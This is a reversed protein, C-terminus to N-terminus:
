HYGYGAVYDIIMQEELEFESMLLELADRADLLGLPHHSADVIPVNNLGLEKMTEWVSSVPDSPYCFVVDATMATACTAADPREFSLRFQRVIDTRTVVGVMRGSEDCIVIMRKGLGSLLDAAEVLRARQGITNLRATSKPLLEEVFRM